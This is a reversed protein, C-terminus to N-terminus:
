ADITEVVERAYECPLAQGAMHAWRVEAVGKGQIPVRNNVGMKYWDYENDLQGIDIAQYGAMALDYSLVTATPGLSILILTNPSAHRKASDFIKEYCSFAEQAPSTIRSVSKANLLLENGYGFRNNEGEIVLIDRNKFLEMFLEFIVKSRSKDKYMIYPRTVYADFYTADTSLMQMIKERKGGEMYSRIGDAAAETYKDLSAFNDAIAVILRGDRCALVERLRDALRKNPKQFWPREEMLMCDFEGDGFRSLSYGKDILLRLLEDSPRVSPAPLQGYEYPANKLKRSLIQTKRILAETADLFSIKKENDWYKIIREKDVGLKLCALEMEDAYASSTIVVYDVLETTIIESLSRINKGWLERGQKKEDNDAVFFTRCRDKLLSQYVIEGDYGTGYLCVRPLKEPAACLVGRMKEARYEEWFVIKERPVGLEILQEIIEAYYTSMLVIRDFEKDKVIKPSYAYFGDFSTVEDVYNDLFGLIKDNAAIDFFQQKRNQYYQGIGFIFIKM